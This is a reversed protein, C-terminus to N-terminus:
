PTDAVPPLRSFASIGRLIRVNSPAVQLNLPSASEQKRAVRMAAAAGTQGVVRAVGYLWYWSARKLAADACRRFSNILM